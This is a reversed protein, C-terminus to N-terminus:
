LLLCCKSKEPLKGEYPDYDPSKKDITEGSILKYFEWYELEKKNKGFETKCQEQFKKEDWEGFINCCQSLELLTVKRSKDIDAGRFIMKTMYKFDKSKIKELCTLIENQDLNHSGDTDMGDFIFRMAKVNVDAGLGEKMFGIFEDFELKGNGSKDYKAILTKVDNPDAQALAEQAAEAQNEPQEEAQPQPEEGESM